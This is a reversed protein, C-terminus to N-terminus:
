LIDKGKHLVTMELGTARLQRLRFLVALDPACLVGEYGCNIEVEPLTLLYLYSAHSFLMLLIVPTLTELHVILM